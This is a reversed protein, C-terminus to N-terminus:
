SNPTSGGSNSRRNTSRESKRKRGMSQYEPSDEGFQAAVQLAAGDNKQVFITSNEAIIDRVEALRALLRTEEDLSSEIIDEVPQIAAVAYEPNQPHYGAINKLNTFYGKERTLQNPSLRKNRAM